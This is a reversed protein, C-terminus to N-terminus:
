SKREPHIQTYEPEIGLQSQLLNVVTSLDDIGCLTFKLPFESTMDDRVKNDDQRDVIINGIDEGYSEVKLKDIHDHEFAHVLKGKKTDFLMVRQTTMVNIFDRHKHFYLRSYIVYVPFGIAFLVFSISSFVIWLLAGGTSGIDFVGASGLVILLWVIGVGWIRSTQSQLRREKFEAYHPQTPAYWIVAEGEILLTGIRDDVTIHQHQSTTTM